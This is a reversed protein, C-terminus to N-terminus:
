LMAKLETLEQKFPLVERHPIDLEPNDFAEMIAEVESIACDIARDKMWDSNDFWELLLHEPIKSIISWYKVVRKQANTM